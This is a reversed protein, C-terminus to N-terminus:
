TVELAVDCDGDEDTKHVPTTSLFSHPQAVLSDGGCMDPNFAQYDNM